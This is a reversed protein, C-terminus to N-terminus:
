GGIVVNPSCPPLITGTPSPVPAVCGAHHVLDGARAAPRGDFLVRASGRAVVGPASPVCGLKSCPESTSALTAAPLGNIRVTPAGNTVLQHPVPPHPCPSTGHVAHCHPQDHRVHDTLRAANPM